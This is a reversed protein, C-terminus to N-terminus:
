KYLKKFVITLVFQYIFVQHCKNKSSICLFWMKKSCISNPCFTKAFIAFVFKTRVFIELVFAELFFATLVFSTLALAEQVFTTVYRRLTFYLAFTTLVLTTLVSTAAILIENLNGFKRQTQYAALVQSEGILVKFPAVVIM